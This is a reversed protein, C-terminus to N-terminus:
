RGPQPPAAITPTVLGRPDVSRESLYAVRPPTKGVCPVIAPELEALPAPLPHMSQVEGHQRRDLFLITGPARLDIKLRSEDELQHVFEPYMQASAHALEHFAPPMELPFDALMGGAAWSAERGSEGKEVVLVTM